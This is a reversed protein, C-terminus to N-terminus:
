LVTLILLCDCLPFLFCSFLWLRLWMTDPCLQCCVSLFYFLFLFVCLTGSTLTLISPCSLLVFDHLFVNHSFVSDAIRQSLITQIIWVQVEWLLCLIRNPLISHQSTNLPADSLATDPAPIQRSISHADAGSRRPIGDSSPCTPPVSSLVAPLLLLISSAPDSPM